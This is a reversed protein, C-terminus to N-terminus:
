DIYGTGNLFELCPNGDQSWASSGQTGYGGLVIQAGATNTIHLAGGSVTVGMSATLTSCGISGNVDLTYAPSNTGIGVADGNLAISYGSNAVVQIVKNSSGCGVYGANESQGGHYCVLYTSRMIGSVDLKYAPSNTGIGVNGGQLVTIYASSYGGNWPRVQWCDNSDNDPLMAYSAMRTYTGGDSDCGYIKRWQSGSPGCYIGGSQEIYINGSTHFDGNVDLAHSPNAENIGVNGSTLVIKSGSIRLPYFSDGYAAGRGYSQVVSVGGSGIFDDNTYYIELGYGDHYGNQGGVRLGKADWNTNFNNSNGSHYVTYSSSNYQFLLENSNNIGLYRFTGDSPRFGIWSKATETNLNILVDNSGSGTLTGGTLPLYSTGDVTGDAKLFQASTGDRKIFKRATVDGYDSFLVGQDQEYTSKFLLGFGTRNDITYDYSVNEVGYFYM